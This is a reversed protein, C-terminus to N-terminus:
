QLRSQKRLHVILEGLVAGTIAGLIIGAGALFPFLGTMAWALFTFEVWLGALGALILRDNPNILALSPRPPAPRAPAAPPENDHLWADGFRTPPRRAPPTEVVPPDPANLYISM